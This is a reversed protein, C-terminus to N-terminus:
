LKEIFEGNIVFKVLVIGDEVHFFHAVFEFKLLSGKDLSEKEAIFFGVGVIHYKCFHIGFGIFTSM